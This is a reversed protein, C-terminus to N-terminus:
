SNWIIKGKYLEPILYSDFTGASIVAEAIVQAMDTGGKVLMTHEISNVHAEFKGDHAEELFNMEGFIILINKM